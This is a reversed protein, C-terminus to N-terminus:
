VLLYLAASHHAPAQGGLQEATTM